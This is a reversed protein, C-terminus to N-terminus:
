LSDGATVVDVRFRALALDKRDREVAIPIQPGAQRGPNSTVRSDFPLCTLNERRSRTDGTGFCFGTM